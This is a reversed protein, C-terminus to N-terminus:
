GGDRCRGADDYRSSPWCPGCYCTLGEFGAPCPGDCCLAVWSGGCICPRLDCARPEDRADAIEGADVSPPTGTDPASSTDPTTDRQVVDVFGPAESTADALADSRSSPADDGTASPADPVSAAGGAGGGGDVGDITASQFSGGGCGVLLCLLFVSRMGVVVAPLPRNKLKGGKKGRSLAGLARSLGPLAGANPPMM